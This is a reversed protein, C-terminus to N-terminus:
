EYDVYEQFVPSMRCSILFIPSIYWIGSMAMADSAQNGPSNALVMGIEGLCRIQRFKGEASPKCRAAAIGAGFCMHLILRCEGVGRCEVAMAPLIDAKFKAM